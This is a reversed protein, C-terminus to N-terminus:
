TTSKMNSYYIYIYNDDDSIFVTPQVNINYPTLQFIPKWTTYIKHNNKEFYLLSM